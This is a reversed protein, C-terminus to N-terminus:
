LEGAIGPEDSRYQEGMAKFSDVGTVSCALRYILVLAYFGFGIPLVFYGPWIPIPTNFEIVFSGYGYAEIAEGLQAYAVLGAVVASVLWTLATLFQRLRMTLLQSVVEVTIHSDMREALALPLYAVILMHYNTVLATTGPVPFSFLNRLTVDVIIQIMMIMVSAAGIVTSVTVLFAMARGAAKM